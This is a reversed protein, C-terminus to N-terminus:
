AVEPEVAGALDDGQFGLAEAQRVGPLLAVDYLENITHEFRLWHLTRGTKIDVVVLGCRPAADRTKLAEELALGEFSQNHRPRSLGVVAYRGFFALGRAYGPLFAVPEFRGDSPDVVGLEGTGSNLVWLRGEHLRPSHPMSLGRAVIEGSAVHVVVGGDRRRDRWGDQVDSSSIATVYAPTGNDMALGNLHCRDEPMLASVFPPRWLPRFAARDSITALCNYQTTVFIPGPRAMDGLVGLGIDHIDLAGTVRAERPIFVRDAGRQTMMGPPVTNAFRWLMTKGSVWIESGDTWLGQCQEILREHARLTGDPRLGLLIIRGAQYTTLAISMRTEALWATFGPAALLIPGKSETPAFSEEGTGASNM